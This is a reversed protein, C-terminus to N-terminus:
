RRDAFVAEGRLFSQRCRRGGLWYSLETPHDIEWLAVDAVKGVELSGIDRDLGLARAAHITAGRLAEVPTLGFLICAMNMATVMSSLPSTGPNADTAVAIPVGAERLAAIPPRQTEGLFYFAGPLLVAVTGSEAMAKVGAVSAYELHDASLAGFSAAVEAGGSASFQDAHLRLSFGADRAAGFLREVAPREFGVGPELYADVLAALDGEAIAPLMEECILDIYADPRGAYEEPLAHAGLFTPVVRLPSRDDLRQIARLMRLETETDLGYGTKIEITTVGEALLHRLRAATEDILATESSARTAAVTSRIGGGAAAIEAYTKGELRAEFDSVRQGSFMLHTHCDVLGPTAWMGGASTVTEACEQPADPLEGIRGIWAIRGNSFALAANELAGYGTGAMTALNVNIILHDWKRPTSNEM